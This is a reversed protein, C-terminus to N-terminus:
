FESKKLAIQERLQKVTPHKETSDVLLENLRDELRAIEASKIKGKYVQLQAEIFAIADATEKDQIEKNQEIFIDTINKVVAQTHVPHDGVYSLRIINTGQLKITIQDRIHDILDEFQKQTKIKEDLKLRKILQVLSNWGLMSEKITNLRQRVTTSIAIEKFLPNDSKGEKVLITTSSLYRKPMVIGACVGGVLGIIAPIIIMEKRRFFIKLYSLIPFTEQQPETM